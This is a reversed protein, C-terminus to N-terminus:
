KRRQRQRKNLKHKTWQTTSINHDDNSNDDHTNTLTNLEDTDDDDEGEYLVEYENKLIIPEVRRTNRFPDFEGTTKTVHDDAQKEKKVTEEISVGPDASEGSGRELMMMLNMVNGFM